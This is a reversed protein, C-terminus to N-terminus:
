GNSAQSGGVKLGADRARPAVIEGLSFDLIQAPSNTSREDRPVADGSGGIDIVTSFPEALCM